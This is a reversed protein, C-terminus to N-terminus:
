DTAQGSTSKPHALLWEIVHKSFTDSRSPIHGGGEITWLEVAGGTRCRSTYQTITTENGEIRKDLDITKELTIAEVECGNYAAWQEVSQQAGPYTTTAGIEGGGYAITTDKTGHIQLVHVTSAPAPRDLDALTAGALSAIAAIPDSHDYAMRYSMFGGNSHGILYVRKPDISYDAKVRDIIEQVYASDDVESGQFNCCADSANWFRAKRGSEERTGDPTALLYGYTDVLAGFKMYSEQQKGSSTYGHLLVVLPAPTDTDYNAPVHLPVPGRGADISEPESFSLPVAVLAILVFSVITRM